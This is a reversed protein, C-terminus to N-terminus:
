AFLVKGDNHLEWVRKLTKNTSLKTRIRAQWRSRNFKEAHDRSTYDAWVLGPAAPLYYTMGGYPRNAILGVKYLTFLTQQVSKKSTEFNFLVLAAHLDSLTIVEALSILDLTLIIEHRRSAAHLRESEFKKSIRGDVHSIVVQIDENLRGNEHNPVVCVSLLDKEQLQRLPGLSIFSKKPHRKDTVVVVLKERLSEIQSFAGLEAISGAAELFIVVAGTVHGLDQEFKLLDSYTDFDNWDEYNEPVLLIENLDAREAKVAGVFEDRCSKAPEGAKDPKTLEGGFVALFSPQREIRTKEFDIAELLEQLVNM